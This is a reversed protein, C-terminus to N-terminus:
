SVLASLDAQALKGNKEFFDYLEKACKEVNAPSPDTKTSSVLRTMMIKLALMQWPKSTKGTAADRWCAASPPPLAVDTM